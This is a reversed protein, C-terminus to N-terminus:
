HRILRRMLFAAIILMVGNSAWLLLLPDGRGYRTLNMGCLLLPYYILVIPLFCTIFASLYDRKSFWIGVPCGVLAFCLCGCAVSPRMYLETDVALTQRQIDKRKNELNIRHLTLDDPRGDLASRTTVWAQEATVDVMEDLLEVRRCRLMELTMERAKRERQPELPSDPMPVPWVRDEFYGATRDPM